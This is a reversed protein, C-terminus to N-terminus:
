HLLMCATRHPPQSAVPIPTCCRLFCLMSSKDLGAVGPSQWAGTSANLCLGLAHPVPPLAGTLFKLMYQELELFRSSQWRSDPALSGEVDVSQLVGGQEGVRLWERDGRSGHVVANWAFSAVAVVALNASVTVAHLTRHPAAHPGGRVARGAACAQAPM